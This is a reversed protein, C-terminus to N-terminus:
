APDASGCAAAAHDWRDAFNFVTARVEPWEANEAQIRLQRARERIEEPTRVSQEVQDETLEASWRGDEGVDARPDVSHGAARALSAAEDYRAALMLLTDRPERWEDQAARARLVCARVRLVEPPRTPNRFSEALRDIM